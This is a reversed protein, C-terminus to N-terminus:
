EKKVTKELLVVLGNLLAERMVSHRNQGTAKAVSDLWSVEEESLKISYPKM